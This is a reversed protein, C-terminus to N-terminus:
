SYRTHKSKEAHLHQPTWVVNMELCVLKKIAKTSSSSSSLQKLRTRSQAVGYIAAWWAGVDRPNELCSCQLPNGNGEGVCSLSFHFHLWETTGLEKHGWPSCSVLRRQRHSKGPFSVPTPQWKRRWPIMKVWPNYWLRKHRRLKCVLENGASGHCFGLLWGASLLAGFTVSVFLPDYITISQIIFNHRTSKPFHSHWSCILVQWSCKGAASRCRPWKGDAETTILGQAPVSALM